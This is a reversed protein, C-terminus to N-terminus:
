SRHDGPRTRPSRPPCGAPRDTHASRSPKVPPGHPPCVRPSGACLLIVGCHHRGAQHGSRNNCYDNKKGGGRKEAGGLLGRRREDIFDVQHRGIHPDDVLVALGDRRKGGAIQDGREVAVRALDHLHTWRRVRAPREKQDEVVEPCLSLLQLPQGLRGCMEERRELLRIQDAERRRAPKPRRNGWGTVPGGDEGREGAFVEDPPGIRAGGFGKDRHTFREVHHPGAAILVRAGFDDLALAAGAAPRAATPAALGAGAPSRRRTPRHSTHWGRPRRPEPRPAGPELLRGPLLDRGVPSEEGRKM